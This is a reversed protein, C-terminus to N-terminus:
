GCITADFKPTVLWHAKKREGSPPCVKVVVGPQVLKAVPLPRM